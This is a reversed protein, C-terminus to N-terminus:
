EKERKESDDQQIPIGRNKLVMNRLQLGMVLEIDRASKGEQFLYEKIKEFTDKGMEQKIIDKAKEQIDFASKTESFEEILRDKNNELYEKGGSEELVKEGTETLALPSQQTVLLGSKFGELSSVRGHLKFLVAFIGGMIPTLIVALIIALGEVSM